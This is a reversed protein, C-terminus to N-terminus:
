NIRRLGAFPKSSILRICICYSYFARRLRKSGIQFNSIWWCISRSWIGVIKSMSIVVYNPCSPSCIHCMSFISSSISKIYSRYTGNKSSWHKVIVLLMICRFSRALSIFFTVHLIQWFDNKRRPLTTPGSTISQQPMDHQREQMARADYLVATGVTNCWNQTAHCFILTDSM